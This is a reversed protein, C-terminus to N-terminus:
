KAGKFPDFLSVKNRKSKHQGWGLTSPLPLGGGGKSNKLRDDRELMLRHAVKDALKTVGKVRSNRHDKVRSM